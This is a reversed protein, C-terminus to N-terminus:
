QQEIGLPSVAGQTWQIPPQISPVWCITKITWLPLKYTVSYLFDRVSFHIVIRQKVLGQDFQKSWAIGAESGM